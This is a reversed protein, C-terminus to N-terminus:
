GGGGLGQPCWVGGGWQGPADMRLAQGGLPDGVGAACPPALLTQITREYVRPIM